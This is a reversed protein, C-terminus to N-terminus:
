FVTEFYIFSVIPHFLYNYASLGNRLTKAFGRSTSYMAVRNQIILM